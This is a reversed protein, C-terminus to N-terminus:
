CSTAIHKLIQKISVATDRLYERALMIADYARVERTDARGEMINNHCEYELSNLFDSVIEKNNELILSDIYDFRKELSMSLFKKGGVEEAKSMYVLACRSKLTPLLQIDNPVCFFFHINESSEEFTKLLANQAQVTIGFCSIVLIKPKDKSVSHFAERDLNKAEEVLFNEYNAEIILANPLKSKIEEKILESTEIPKDYVIYSHSLPKEFIEVVKNKVNSSMRSKTQSKTQSRVWM